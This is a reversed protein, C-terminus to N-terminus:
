PFLGHMWWSPLRKGDDQGYLGERFLWYRVGDEDEVRYYDRTRDRQVHAPQWWEPALREPGEARAVRRPVRRWTFRAPAGDPLEALAEIPEPPDFMLIPRPRVLPRGMATGLIARQAPVRRESREPLWSEYRVPMTVAHEGLRAALRDVLESLPRADRRSGAELELPPQVLDTPETRDASLALVDIGFGLDLRELGKERLLRLWIEAQVTPVTMRVALGVVAGDSRFGDLRLSSAGRADQQLRTALTAALLPLYAEVGALDIVPEAFSEVARYRVPPRVPVLPEEILGLAQDLRRVLDQGDTARFRRALGTRPMGYLDGIRRLGFLRALRLTEEGLRLAAIPLSALGERIQELELRSACGGSWRALAWAAGATPAVAMQTGIGASGFRERLDELLGAEGGFLHDVGTVDLFLGELGDPSPDIAVTPSWRECWHALRVLAQAEWNPEAPASVLDPLVARADAHAQGRRLGRARAAANLARLRLGHPGKEILALPVDEPLKPRGATRSWVM